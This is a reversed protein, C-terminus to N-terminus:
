AVRLLYTHEQIPSQVFGYHKLFSISHETMAHALLARIGFYQAVSQTRTVADKLLGAGLGNGQHKQTVGLHGLVMVPTIQIRSADGTAGQVIGGRALSYYGAVAIHNCTAYTRAQGTRSFPLAYRKLWDTMLEDGCDFDTVKHTGILAVPAKSM